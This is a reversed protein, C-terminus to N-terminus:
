MYYSYYKKNKIIKKMSNTFFLCSSIYLITLITSYSLNIFRSISLIIPFIFGKTLILNYYQGLYTGNSLNNSLEIMLYDDFALNKFYFTPLNYSMLFRIITLLIITIQLWYKKIYKM